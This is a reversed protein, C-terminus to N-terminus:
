NYERFFGLFTELDINTTFIRYFGFCYDLVSCSSLVSTLVRAWVYWFSGPVVIFLTKMHLIFVFPARWLRLLLRTMLVRVLCKGSLRISYMTWWSVACAMSLFCLWFNQFVM